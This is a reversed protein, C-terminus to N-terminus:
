DGKCSTPFPWKVEKTNAYPSMNELEVVKAWYEVERTYILHSEASRCIGLLFKYNDLRTQAYTMM